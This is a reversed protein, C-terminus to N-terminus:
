QDLFSQKLQLFRQQLELNFRQIQQLQQFLTQTQTEPTTETQPTEEPIQATPITGDTFLDYVNSLSQKIRKEATETLYDRRFDWPYIEGTISSAPDIIENNLQLFHPVPTVPQNVPDYITAQPPSNGGWKFLFNYKMTAQINQANDGTAVAPGTMVINNLAQKQYKFRPYWNTIDDRLLDEHETNYAGKGLIFDHSIPVYYQEPQSLYKSQFVVTWNTDLDTTKGIRRLIDEFGWLMLWLPYNEFLLEPDTTPNWDTKSSLYNPVVYLRNGDGKDKFPNYRVPFVLPTTKLESSKINTELQDKLTEPSRTAQTQALPLHETLYTWHFPNGWEEFKKINDKTMYSGRKNEMTNGLYIAQSWKYNSPTLAHSDIGYLFQNGTIRYGWEPHEAKFQFFPTAFVKTDICWVTCNNSVERDSGFMNSLSCAVAAFTVLTYQSLQQQFFWQNKMLKPPPIFVRKYPKKKHPQTTFSPVVKKRKHTLLRLPHHSCYYYKPVHRPEEEMWTFIYDTFRERFLYVYCGIYRCMNLNQNSRTWYNMHDKHQSYLNALSLRQISWGGGGPYKPPFITEKWLTYQNSYRGYGAQFLPLYGEIRCKRISM